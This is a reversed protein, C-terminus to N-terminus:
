NLTMPVKRRFWIWCGVDSIGERGNMIVDRVSHIRM